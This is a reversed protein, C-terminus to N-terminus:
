PKSERVKEWLPKKTDPDRQHLLDEAQAESIAGPRDADDITYTAGTIVSRIRDTTM